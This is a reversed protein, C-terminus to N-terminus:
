ARHSSQRWGKNPRWAAGAGKSPRLIACVCRGQCREAVGGRWLGALREARAGEPSSMAAAPLSMWTCPATARIIVIVILLSESDIKPAIGQWQSPPVTMCMMATWLCFDHPRHSPMAIPELPIRIAPSFQAPGPVAKKAWARWTDKGLTPGSKFARRCIRKCLERGEITTNDEASSAPRGRRSCTSEVIRAKEQLGRPAQITMTIDTDPTLSTLSPTQASAQFSPMATASRQRKMTYAREKALHQGKRHGDRAVGVTMSSDANSDCIGENGRGRQHMRADLSPANSHNMRPQLPQQRRQKHDAPTRNGFTTQPAYTQRQKEPPAGKDDLTFYAISVADQQDQPDGIVEVATTM